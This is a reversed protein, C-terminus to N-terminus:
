ESAGAASSRRGRFIRNAVSSDVKVDVVLPGVTRGIRACAAALDAPSRVTTSECGYAAAIAAWDPSEFRALHDPEARNELYRVEAGYAGDDIVVITLPLRHRVATDLETLSMAFGGDGVFVVTPDEPVGAAAGVGIPVSLGISAFDATWIRREPSTPRVHDVVFFAFHGADVVIRSRTPLASSIADLVTRPDLAGGTVPVYERIAREDAAIDAVRDPTRLGTRTEAGLEHDLAADLAALTAEADGCLAIDVPTEAGHASPRHDLHIITAKGFLQGHGSTYGNLAAGVVLACDTETMARTASSTGLTGIVGVDHPGGVLYQAQLSSGYLAGIREGISTLLARCGAGIAGRGAVVVPASATALARAAEAIASAPPVAAAARVPPAMYRWHEAVGDFDADGELLDVPIDLVAPGEGSGARRFAEYIDVVVQASSVVSLHHGATAEFFEKQAFGKLHHREAVPVGGALVVLPSRRKAATVLSTGTMAVSPGAGVSVVGVRGTARAYGDAMCVAGYETRARVITAGKEEMRALISMNDSTMLSFVTTVGQEVLAEAIVDFTKV